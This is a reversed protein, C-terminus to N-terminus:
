AYGRLPGCLKASLVPVVFWRKWRPHMEEDRQSFDPGALGRNKEAYRQMFDPMGKM